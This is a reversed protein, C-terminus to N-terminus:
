PNNSSIDDDEDDEDSHSTGSMESDAAENAMEEWNLTSDVPTTNGIGSLGLVKKVGDPASEELTLQNGAHGLGRTVNVAYDNELLIEGALDLVLMLPGVLKKIKPAKTGVFNGLALGGVHSGHRIGFQAAKPGATAMPKPRLFSIKKAM